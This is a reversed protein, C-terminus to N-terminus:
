KKLKRRLFTPVDLDEGEVITPEVKEFRGRAIPELPLDEQKIKPASTKLQGAAPTQPAPPTSTITDEPFLASATASTTAPVVVPTSPELRGVRGTQGILTIVLPASDDRVVGVGLHLLAAPSTNKSIEQMIAAVEAFTLSRPGSLHVLVKEADHVLRGHDLLPSRLAQELAEHARNGGDAEGSGFLFSGGGGRLIGLLDPVAVQMPGPCSILRALSAVAQFLIADCAAFTEEAEARPATIEAMRDNEFHVIADAHLSLMKLAEQAQQTRRRGEFHFPTTVVAVVLSGNAHALEALHPTVASGTGGGLGACLFVVDAGEVARRLESMSERAAEHGLEPDGGAGLGHTTMPGLATKRSAVSANLSQQDSNVAVTEIALPARVVMRDAINVGANGIGLLRLVPEKGTDRELWRPYTIM